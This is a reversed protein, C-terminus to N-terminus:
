ARPWSRLSVPGGKSRQARHSPAHGHKEVAVAGEDDDDLDEVLRGEQRVLPDRHCPWREQACKKSSFTMGRNKIITISKKNYKIMRRILFILIIIYKIVLYLKFV